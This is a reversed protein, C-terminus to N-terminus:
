EDTDDQMGLGKQVILDTMLAMYSQLANERQDDLAIEYEIRKHREQAKRVVWNAGPILLLLLFPILLLDIWDWLTKGIFGTGSQFSLLWITSSLILGGFIFIFILYFSRKQNDSKTLGNEMRSIM